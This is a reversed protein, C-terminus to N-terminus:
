WGLVCQLLRRLYFLKSQENRFLAEMNLASDMKYFKNQVGLYVKKVEEVM